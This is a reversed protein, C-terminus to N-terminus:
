NEMEFLPTLDKKVEGKGSLDRLLIRKRATADGAEIWELSLQSLHAASDSVCAFAGRAIAQVLFDRQHPKLTARKGLAKVEIFAATGTNTCGILDSTGAKTQTSKYTGTTTSFQARAEVVTMFWNQIRCWRLIDAKADEEPKKNRKTASTQTPLPSNKKAYKLVSQEIRKKYDDNTSM